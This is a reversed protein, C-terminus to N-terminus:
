ADCRNHTPACMIEEELAELREKEKRVTDIVFDIATSESPDAEKDLYWIDIFEPIPQAAFV